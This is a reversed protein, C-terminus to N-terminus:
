EEAVMDRREYKRPRGPGRRMTIVEDDAKRASGVIILLEADSDSVSEFADGAKFPHGNYPMDIKAVLKM